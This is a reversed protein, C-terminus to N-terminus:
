PRGSPVFCPFFLLLALSFLLFPLAGCFCSAFRVCVLSFPGRALSRRTWTSSGSQMRAAGAHRASCRVYYLPPSLSLGYHHGLSEQEVLGTIVSGRFVAELECVCARVRARVRACM